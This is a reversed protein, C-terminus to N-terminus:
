NLFDDPMEEAQMPDAPVPAPPPTGPLTPQPKPRPQGEKIIYDPHNPAQKNRNPFILLIKQEPEQGIVAFLYPRGNKDLKKWAAGANPVEPLQRNYPM